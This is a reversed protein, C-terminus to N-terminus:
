ALVAVARCIAADTSARRAEVGVVTWDSGARHVLGAKPSVVSTLTDEYFLTAPIKACQCRLGSFMLIFNYSNIQDQVKNGM